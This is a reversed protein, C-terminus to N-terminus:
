RALRGQEKLTDWDDSPMNLGQLSSRSETATEGKLGCRGCVPTIEVATDAVSNWFTSPWLYVRVREVRMAHGLRACKLAPQRFERWWRPAIM